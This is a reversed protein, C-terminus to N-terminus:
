PSGAARLAAPIFDFCPLQVLPQNLFGVVPHYNLFESVYIPVVFAFWTVALLGFVIRRGTFRAYGALGGRRLLFFPAPVLALATWLGAVVLGAAPGGILLAGLGVMLAALDALGVLWWPVSGAGWGLRPSAAPLAPLLGLGDLRSVLVPHLDQSGIWGRDLARLVAAAYNRAMARRTVLLAPFLALACCFLYTQLKQLLEADSADTWSDLHGDLFAPVTKLGAFVLSVLALVLAVGLYGLPRAQILRWVFRFDFFARYDETVAQHVQAMPVYLMAAIFLFIGTFGTLPGIIAQEYGKNFSNLWGFEWSFLMVLCGWGTLLYTCFLAQVGRKLNLWLSHWPLMFLRAARRLRGAPASHIIPRALTERAPERLFWRPRPAPASPGLAACFEEFTELGARGSRRWWSRLVAAQMWRYMWGVVLISTFYNLCFLAGVVWRWVLGCLSVLRRTRSRSTKREM